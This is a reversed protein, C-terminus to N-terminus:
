RSVPHRRLAEGEPVPSPPTASEDETLGSGNTMGGRCPAPLVLGRVRPLFPWVTANWHLENALISLPSTGAQAPRDRGFNM